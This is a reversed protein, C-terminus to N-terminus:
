VGFRRKIDEQGAMVEAADDAKEIAVRVLRDPIVVELAKAGPLTLTKWLESLPNPPESKWAAIQRVQEAEYATLSRRDKKVGHNMPDDGSRPPAPRSARLECAAGPPAAREGM